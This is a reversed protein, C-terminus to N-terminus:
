HIAQGTLVFEICMHSSERDNCMCLLHALVDTERYCVVVDADLIRTSHYCLLGPQKYTCFSTNDHWHRLGNEKEKTPDHYRINYWFLENVLFIITQSKSLQKQQCEKWM